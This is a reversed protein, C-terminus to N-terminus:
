RWHHGCAMPIAALEDYLTRPLSIAADVESASTGHWALPAQLWGCSALGSLSAALQQKCRLTSPPWLWSTHCCVRDCRIFWSCKRGAARVVEQRRHCWLHKADAPPSVLEPTSIRSTSSAHGSRVSSFRAYLSSTPVAQLTRSRSRDACKSLKAPYTCPPRGASLRQAWLCLM